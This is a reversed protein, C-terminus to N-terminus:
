LRRRNSEMAGDSVTRVSRKEKYPWKQKVSRPKPITGSGTCAAPKSPKRRHRWLTGDHKVKVRANCVPCVGTLPAPKGYLYPQRMSMQRGLLPYIEGFFGADTEVAEVMEKRVGLEYEKLLGRPGDSGQYRKCQFCVPFSVLGLQDVGRGTSGAIV